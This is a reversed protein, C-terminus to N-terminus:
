PGKVADELGLVARLKALAKRKLRYIHSVDFGKEKALDAAKVNDLVLARVIEAEREPLRSLEETLSMLWELKEFDDSSVMHVSAEDVPMPAKAEVRQLFNAMQGKVRYYAFTSFKINRSPDFRDVAEILAVMGEQILDPYQQPSVNFKSALWFVMPRHMLILEERAKEDGEVARQWLLVEEELQKKREEEVKGSSVM